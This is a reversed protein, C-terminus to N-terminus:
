LFCVVGLFPDFKLTNLCNKYILMYIDEELDKEKIPLTAISIPLPSFLILMALLTLELLRYLLQNTLGCKGSKQSLRILDQTM